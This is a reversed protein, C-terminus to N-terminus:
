QTPGTGEGDVSPPSSTASSTSAPTTASIPATTTAPTPPPAAAPAPTLTAAPSPAAQVPTSAPASESGPLGEFDYGTVVVVTWLAAALLVTAVAARGVAGKHTVIRAAGGVIVTALGAVVVWIWVANVTWDLLNMFRVALAVAGGVLYVPNKTGIFILIAIIGAFILIGNVVTLFLDTHIMWGVLMAAMGGLLLRLWLAAVRSVLSSLSRSLSERFTTPAPQVTPAPRAAPAPQPARTPRAAPARRREGLAQRYANGAAAPATSRTPASTVAPRPPPPASPPIDGLVTELDPVKEVPVSCYEGLREALKVVTPDPSAKLRGFVESSGPDAYDTRTLVLNDENHFDWLGPDAAIALLSLYIVLSPFNDVNEDYHEPSRHPHQYNKQGLEPSRQGRFQPLFMGDYDVLRISGDGQVMVNGHQLDNHAIRLGRLSATPGGRWQAAVRRLTDPQNIRSGVFRSLLEGDVWEMKVIPFWSGKLSIGREVYEFHVFSPPLVNLLYTSLEGYRAQQDSVERTFCRVAYTRSGTSVPYVCAFSGSFVLPMGRQNLSVEALELDTGNFCLTPNQVAESFDTIGPWAM